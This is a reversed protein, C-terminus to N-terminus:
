ICQWRNTSNRRTVQGLLTRRALRRDGKPNTSIMRPIPKGLATDGAQALTILTPANIPDRPVRM